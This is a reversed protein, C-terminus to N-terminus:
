FKAHGLSSRNARLEVTTPSSSGRLLLLRGIVSHKLKEVALRYDEEDLDVVLNDRVMRPMYLSKLKPLSAVEEKEKIEKVRTLVDRFTKTNSVRIPNLSTGEHSVDM